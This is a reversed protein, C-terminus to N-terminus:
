PELPPADYRVSVTPAELAIAGPPLALALPLTYRGSAPPETPLDVSAGVEVLDDLVSPPAAIAVDTPADTLDSWGPAGPAFLTLPVRREIRVREMVVDIAVRPPTIVLEPLPRGTEDVAHVAVGTSLLGGRVDEVLVPAVVAFVQAVITARGRVRAEQPDVSPLLREDPGVDGIVSARVPVTRNTIAELVGIVENPNVRELTIGQPGAVQVDAQFDGVVDSLELVAEFSEPRLRDIRASPGSVSVEVVDPLGAAVLDGGLGEVVIPVLLSRQSIATEDTTVVLWLTVAVLLAGLKRPWHHIARRALALLPTM